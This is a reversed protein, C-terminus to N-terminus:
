LNYKELNNILYWSFDTSFAYYKELSQEHFRENCSLIRQWNFFFLFARSTIKHFLCISKRAFAAPAELQVARIWIANLSKAEVDCFISTEM